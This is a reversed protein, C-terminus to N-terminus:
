TLGQAQLVGAGREQLRLLGHEPAVLRGGADRRVHGRDEPAQRGVHGDQHAPGQAGGRGEDGHDARRGAKGAFLEANAERSWGWRALFEAPDDGDAVNGLPTSGNISSTYMGGDPTILVYDTIDDCLATRVSLGTFRSAMAGATDEFEARPLRVSLVAERDSFETEAPEFLKWDVPCGLSELFRGIRPLHGRNLSSLLTNVKLPIGARVAARVGETVRSVDYGPGRCATAVGQEVADVSVSLRDLLPAFQGIVAPTLLVGNTVLSIGCRGYLRRALEAIHPNTLPEGGMLSVRECHRAIGDAVALQRDLGPERGRKLAYCWRCRLNCRLTTNWCAYPVAKGPMDPGDRGASRPPRCFCRSKGM